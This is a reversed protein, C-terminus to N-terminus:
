HLEQDSPLMRRMVWHFDLEGNSGPATTFIIDREVVAVHLKLASAATFAQAATINITVYISDFDASIPTLLV